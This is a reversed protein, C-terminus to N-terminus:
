SFFVARPDTPRGDAAIGNKALKQEMFIRRAEDFNVKKQKIIKLVQKKAAVDLGARTDGSEINTALSFSDSNLGAEIEDEFTTPRIREYAHVPLVNELVPIWQKRYVFLGTAIVMLVLAWSWLIYHDTLAM